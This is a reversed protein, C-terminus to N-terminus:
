ESGNNIKLSVILEQTVKPPTNPNTVWFSIEQTISSTTVGVGVSDGVNSYYQISFTVHELLNSYM